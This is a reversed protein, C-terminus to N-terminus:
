KGENESLKMPKLKIKKAGKEKKEEDFLTKEAEKGVSKGSQTSQTSDEKDFSTLEYTGYSPSYAIGDAVLKGLLRSVNSKEKNIQEAVEGTRMPRNYTRMLKIIEEREATLRVNPILKNANWTCTQSDFKLEYENDLVDRGSVHLVSKEKSKKLVLMTDAAATIGTSGSIEDFVNEESGKKTHHVCLMCIRNEKTFKQLMGTLEYDVTYINRNGRSQDKIAKAYTDIIILKVNPNADMIKKLEDLGGENLKSLNDEDLYFLNKPATRGSEYRHINNLRDKIRRHNDELAIYVVDCKCTEYYGLAREGNAVSISMNLALFSKGSKPRGALFALGEPLLDKVIWRMEPIDKKQIENASILKITPEGREPKGLEVIRVNEKNFIKRAEDQM